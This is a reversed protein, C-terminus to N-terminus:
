FPEKRWWCSSAATRLRIRGWMIRRTPWGTPITLEPMEPLARGKAEARLVALAYAAVANPRYGALSANVFAFAGFGADFDVQMASSFSVMGGTHRLLTRGEVPQIAIGYGYGSGEGFGPAPIAPKMFLAFSEESVLRGKPMRGRNLLMRMYLTM